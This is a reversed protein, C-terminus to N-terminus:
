SWRGSLRALREFSDVGEFIWVPFLFNLNIIGVFFFFFTGMRVVYDLAAGFQMSPDHEKLAGLPRKHDFHAAVRPVPAEKSSGSVPGSFSSFQYQPSAAALSLMFLAVTRCAMTVAVRRDPGIPCYALRRALTRYTSRLGGAKQQTRWAAVEFRNVRRTVADAHLFLFCKGSKDLTV